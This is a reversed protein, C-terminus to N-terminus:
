FIASFVPAALDWVAAGLAGLWSGMVRLADIARYWVAFVSEPYAVGLSVFALTMLALAAQQWLGLGLREVRFDSVEDFQALVEREVACHHTCVLMEQRGEQPGLMQAALQDFYTIRHRAVATCYPSFVDDPLGDPANRPSIHDHSQCTTTM